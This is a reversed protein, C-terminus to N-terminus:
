KSLAPIYSSIRHPFMGQKQPSQSGPLPISVGDDRMASYDGRYLLFIIADGVTPMRRFMVGVSADKLAQVTRISMDKLSLSDLSFAHFSVDM